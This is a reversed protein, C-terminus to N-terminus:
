RAVGTAVRQGDRARDSEPRRRLGLLGVSGLLGLLGWKWNGDDHDDRYDRTTERANDPATQAIVPSALGLVVTTLIAPMVYKSTKM